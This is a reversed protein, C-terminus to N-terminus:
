QGSRASTGSVPDLLRLRAWTRTQESDFYSALLRSKRTQLDGPALGADQLQSLETAFEDYRQDFQQRERLYGVVESAQTPDMGTAILREGADEPSSAKAMAAQRQQQTKQENILHQETKRIQPPLQQRQWELLTQRASDSLDTRQQIDICALTYDDYAEEPGFFAQHTAPSFVDARLQKLDELAQHFMQMQYAPDTQKSPDLSRNGLAMAQRKYDLYRDLLAMAQDAAAPPLSQRALTKIQALAEEASSDGIANLFYDFFDRTAQNVVLQGNADAALQGDIDTGRLSAAFPEAGLSEPTTYPTDTAAQTRVHAPGAPTAASNGTTSTASRSVTPPTPTPQPQPQPSPQLILGTIGATVLIVTLGTMLLPLRHKPPISLLSM